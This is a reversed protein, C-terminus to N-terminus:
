ELTAWVDNGVIVRSTCIAINLSMTMLYSEAQTRRGAHVLPMRLQTGM